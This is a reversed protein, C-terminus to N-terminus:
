NNKNEDSPVVKLPDDSVFAIINEGFGNFQSKLAISYAGIEGVEIYDDVEIDDPLEFPGNMVDLSDCTPGYFRFAKLNNKEARILGNQRLLRVPYRNHVVPGADCLNGYTGDNIYISDQRRALVQVIISCAESVMARGPECQLTTEKPLNLNRFGREISQFFEGLPPPICGPYTGPFGGGVDIVDIKVNAENIIRKVIDLANEYCEPELCQSGVHFCIGLRKAISRAERLITVADTANAGFKRSLDHLTMNEAVQIRVILGLDDGNKTVKIIKHLEEISDLAYDRVNNNFYAQFIVSKPKVPHMFHITASPFLTRVLKIESISACDFHRLGASWLLKLISPEANCKVAYLVNGPFKSLFYRATAEITKPRICFVPVTPKLQRITEDIPLLQSPTNLFLENNTLVTLNNGDLSCNQVSYNGISFSSKSCKKNLETRKNVPQMILIDM